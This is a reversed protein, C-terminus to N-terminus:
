RKEGFLGKNKLTKQNAVARNYCVKIRKVVSSRCAIIAGFISTARSMLLRGSAGAASSPHRFPYAGFAGPLLIHPHKPVFWVPKHSDDSSPASDIRILARLIRTKASAGDTQGGRRKQGDM